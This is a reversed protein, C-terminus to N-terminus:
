GCASGHNISRSTSFDTDWPWCWAKYLRINRPTPPSSSSTSRNLTSGFHFRPIRLAAPHTHIAQWFIVSNTTFPRCRFACYPFCRRASESPSCSCPWAHWCLGNPSVRRLRAQRSPRVAWSRPDAPLHKVKTAGPAPPNLLAEQKALRARCNECRLLHERIDIVEPISLGKGVAYFSLPDDAIHEIQRSSSAGSRPYPHRCPLRRVGRPLLTCRRFNVNDRLKVKVQTGREVRRPLAVRLGSRSVDLVTGYIPEAPGPLLELEAPYQTPYRTESRREADQESTLFPSHSLLWPM